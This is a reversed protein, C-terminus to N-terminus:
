EEFVDVGPPATFQFMTRDIPYNKKVDSFYIRTLQGFNDNLEMGGITKGDMGILIYKFSSNEDKPRLRVWRMGEDTGQNEVIFNRDLSMEGSLLMAPTAGIAQDLHKVTVQELDADYFWVKTGNSVIEQKFPRQYDWRFRGPKKLYFRGYSTKIPNGREDISVQKFDCSLTRTTILFAKLQMVSSMEVATASISFLCLLAVKILGNLRIFPMEIDYLKTFILRIREWDARELHGVIMM